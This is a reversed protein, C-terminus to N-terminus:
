YVEVVERGDKIKQPQSFRRGTVAIYVRSDHYILQLGTAQLADLTQRHATIKQVQQRSYNGSLAAIVMALLALTWVATMPLVSRRLLSQTATRMTEIDAKQQDLMKALQKKQVALAQMTLQDTSRLAHAIQNSVRQQLKQTGLEIRSRADSSASLLSREHRQLEKKMVAELRQQSESQRQRIRESLTRMSNGNM